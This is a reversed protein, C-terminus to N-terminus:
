KPSERDKVTALGAFMQPKLQFTEAIKFLNGNFICANIDGQQM